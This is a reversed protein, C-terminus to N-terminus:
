AVKEILSEKVFGLINSALYIMESETLVVEKYKLTVSIAKNSLYVTVNKNCKPTITYCVINDPSGSGSLESEAFAVISVSDNEFSSNIKLTNQFFDEFLMKAMQEEKTIVIEPEPVPLALPTEAVPTETEAVIPKSEGEPKREQVPVVLRLKQNRKKSM